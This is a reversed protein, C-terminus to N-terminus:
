ARLQTSINSRKIKYIMHMKQVQVISLINTSLFKVNGYKHLEKRTKFKETCVIGFLVKLLPYHQANERESKM